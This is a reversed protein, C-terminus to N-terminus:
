SPNTTSTLSYYSFFIFVNNTLQMSVIVVSRAFIQRFCLSAELTIAKQLM